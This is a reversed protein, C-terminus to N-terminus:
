HLEAKSPQFEVCTCASFEKTTEDIPLYDWDPCWHSFEGVLLRGHWRKCDTKWDDIQGAM